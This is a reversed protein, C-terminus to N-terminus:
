SNASPGSTQASASSEQAATPLTGGSVSPMPVSEIALDAREAMEQVVKDMKELLRQMMSRKQSPFFGLLEERLVATADALCDGRLGEGFSTEDIARESAQSEVLPWLIDLLHTTNGSFLEVAKGNSIDAIDFGAKAAVRKLSGCSIHVNWSRGMDDKFERM